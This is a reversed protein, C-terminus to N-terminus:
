TRLAVNEEELKRILVQNDDKFANTFSDEGFSSVDSKNMLEEIEKELDQNKNATFSLKKQLDSNEQEMKKVKIELQESKVTLTAVQEKEAGLKDKYFSLKDSMKAM